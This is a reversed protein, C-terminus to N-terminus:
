IDTVLNSTGSSLFSKSTQLHQSFRPHDVYSDRTPRNQTIHLEPHQAQIVQSKSAGLIVVLKVALLLKVHYM